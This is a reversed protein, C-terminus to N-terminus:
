KKSKIDILQIDFKLPTYPAIFYKGTKPNLYGASDYALSSPLIITATTGKRMMLIAEDWGEIAQKGGAIFKFPQGRKLSSDFITGNLLSGTYHVVVTDGTTPMAGKGKVSEIYYMGSKTPKVDIHNDAIYQSLEKPGKEKREAIFEKRQLEREMRVDELTKINLLKVGFTLYSKSKFNKGPIDAPFYKNISDTNILFSASDGISMMLIGEEIAGKFVPKTLYQELGYPSIQATNELVSDNFQKVMALRVFEGIKPHTNNKGHLIFKYYLGTETKEYGSFKSDSCSFLFLCLTACM